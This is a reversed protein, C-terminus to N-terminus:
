AKFPCCRWATLGDRVLPAEFNGIALAIVCISSALVIAAIWKRGGRSNEPRVEPQRAPQVQQPHDVAPGNAPPLIGAGSETDCEATRLHEANGNEAPPKFIYGRRPVTRILAQNQDGLARRVEILCQVLSNDTVSSDGWVARILEEKGLLRGRNEVLYRLVEFSKPRLKIEDRGHRLCGCSLDLSFGEFDLPPSPTASM